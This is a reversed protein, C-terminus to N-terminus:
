SPEHYYHDLVLGVLEVASYSSRCSLACRAFTGFLYESINKLNFALVVYTAEKNLLWSILSNYRLNTAGLFVLGRSLTVWAIIHGM